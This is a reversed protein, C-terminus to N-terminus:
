LDVRLGIGALTLNLRAIREWRFEAYPSVRQLVRWYLEIGMLYSLVTEDAFSAGAGARLAAHVGPETPDRTLLTEAGARVVWGEEACAIGPVCEFDPRSFRAGDAWPQFGSSRPVTVRLGVSVMDRAVDFTGFGGVSAAGELALQLRPATSADASQAGM